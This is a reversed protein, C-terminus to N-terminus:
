SLELWNVQGSYLRGFHGRWFDRAEELHARMETTTAQEDKRELADVIRSHADAVALCRKPSYSVGVTVGDSVDKVSDVFAQLVPNRAIAAIKSHFFANEGTFVDVDEPDAKMRDISTRLLALDATTIHQAAGGALSPEICLRAAILDSLSAGAFTLWVGLPDALDKAKPLRVVPGGNAGPRIRIVGRAELLRLAERVTSRGVKLESVMQKEPLLPDGEGLGKTRIEDLLKLAVVEALKKPRQVAGEGSGRPRIVSNSM